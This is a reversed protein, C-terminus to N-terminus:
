ILYVKIDTRQIPKHTRYKIYKNRNEEYWEESFNEILAKKSPFEVKNRFTYEIRGVIENRKSGMQIEVVARMKKGAEIKM